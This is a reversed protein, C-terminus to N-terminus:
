RAPPNLPSAVNIPSSVSFTNSSPTTVTAVISAGEVQESITISGIYYTGATSSLLSSCSPSDGATIAGSIPLGATDVVDFSISTCQTNDLNNGYADRLYLYYSAEQGVIINYPFVISSTVDVAEGGTIILPSSGSRSQPMSLLTSLYSPAVILTNSNANSYILQIEAGNLSPVYLIEIPNYTNASISFQEDFTGTAPANMGILDVVVVGAISIKVGGNGRIKANTV